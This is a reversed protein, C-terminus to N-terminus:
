FMSHRFSVWRYGRRQRPTNTYPNHTTSHSLPTSGTTTPTRFTSPSKITFLRHTNIFSSVMSRLNTNIITRSRGTCEHTMIDQRFLTRRTVGIQRQNITFKTVGHRRTAHTIVQAMPRSNSNVQLCPHQLLGHFRHHHNIISNNHSTAMTTRERITSTTTISRQIIVQGMTPMIFRRLAHSSHRTIHRTIVIRLSM